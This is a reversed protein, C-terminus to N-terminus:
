ASRKREDHSPHPVAAAPEVPLRIKTQRDVNTKIQKLLQLIFGFFFLQLGAIILVAVLLLAPMRHALRLTLGEEIFVAAFVVFAAGITVLGITFLWRIHQGSRLLLVPLTYFVYNPISGVVRSRGAQRPRWASAIEVIRFGKEAADILTEQVYTHTGLMELSAAVDRRMARLGGHSDTLTLGTHARVMASLIRTGFRNLPRYRYRVLNPELFRSGVVLDAEDREIPALFRPIEAAADAQGDGDVTLIVDPGLEAATRLGKFMAAGLGDGDGPVILAGNERAIRRTGDVSDDVVLVIVQDYAADAFGRRIDGIVGAISAEENKTPVVVCAKAM